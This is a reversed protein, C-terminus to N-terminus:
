ILIATKDKDIKFNGSAVRILKIVTYNAAKIDASAGYALVVTNTYDNRDFTLTGHTDGVLCIDKTNTLEIDGANVFINYNKLWEKEQTLRLLGPYQHDQFFELGQPSFFLRALEDQSEIDKVKNCAGAKLAEDIINMNM